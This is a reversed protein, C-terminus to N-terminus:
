KIQESGNDSDTINIFADELTGAQAAVSFVSVGNEVLIKVANASQESTLAATFEGSNESDLAINEAEPADPFLTQSILRAAEPADSVSFRYISGGKQASLIEEMTKFGLIEGNSIFGVRDCMLQLEPLMHSSVMVGIGCKHALEKLLERLEKIGIPDLANTPEDLILLNPQHLIAQAIGLRQRMGLSYKKVKDNIRESLKVQAVVKKIYDDSIGGHLRATLKLNDMGTLHAYMEPNEIIGGVGEMAKEHESAVDCGNIIVRGSDIRLLGTMMKIVTTKGAGNPGVFGFVEGANIEFSLDKIIRRSGFSKNIHEIKAIVPM